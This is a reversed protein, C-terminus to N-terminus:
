SCAQPQTDSAAFGKMMYELRSRGGQVGDILLMPTLEHSAIWATETNKKVLIGFILCAKDPSGKDYYALAQDSAWDLHQRPTMGEPPTPIGETELETLLELGNVIVGLFGEPLLEKADEVKEKLLTDHHAKSEDSTVEGTERLRDIVRQATGDGGNDRDFGWPSFENDELNTKVPRGFVYDFGLHGNQQDIVRQADEVSM